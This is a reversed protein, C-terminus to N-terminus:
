VNSILLFYQVGGIDVALKHTTTAASATLAGGQQLYRADATARTPVDSATADGIGRSTYENSAIQEVLGPTGDLTALATLTADLPQVGYITSEGGNLIAVTTDLAAVSTELSNVVSNFWRVFLPSPPKKDATFPDNDRLRPLRYAM